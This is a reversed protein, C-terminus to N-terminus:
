FKLMVACNDSYELVGHKECDSQDSAQFKCHYIDKYIAPLKMLM